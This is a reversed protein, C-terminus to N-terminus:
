VNEPSSAAPQPEENLVARSAFFDYGLDFLSVLSFGGGFLLVIFWFTDSLVAKIFDEDSPSSSTTYVVACLSLLFAWFILNAWVLQMVRSAGQTEAKKTSKEHKAM